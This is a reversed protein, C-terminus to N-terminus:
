GKSITKIIIKEARIDKTKSIVIPLTLAKKDKKIIEMIVPNNKPIGKSFIVAEM